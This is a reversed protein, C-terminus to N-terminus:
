SLPGRRWPATRSLTIGAAAGAMDAMWDAVESSRGPVFQQHWEDAAAFFALAVLVLAAHLFSPKTESASVARWALFALIGYMMAHVGKDAGPFVPANRFLAGPLSTATLILAGWALSPGWRWLQRMRKAAPDLSGVGIRWSVIQSLSESLRYSVTSADPFMVCRARTGLAGSHSTCDVIKRTAITALSNVVRGRKVLSLHMGCM